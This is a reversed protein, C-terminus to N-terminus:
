MLLRIMQAKVKEGGSLSDMPQDSYFFDQPLHFSGALQGLERPTQEFFSPDEAFFEYLTKAADKKQLEQPLYALREGAAIREGAAEAYPEILEPDYIWKLLTSKGNGEEGIVVAKDGQNLVFSFDQLIMRLDKKHTISLNKIQLM